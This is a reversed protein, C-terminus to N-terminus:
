NLYNQLRYTGSLIRSKWRSTHFPIILTVGKKMVLSEQIPILSSSYRNQYSIYRELGSVIKLRKLLNEEMGIRLFISLSITINIVYYTLKIRHMQVKKPSQSSANGDNKINNVTGIRCIAYVAYNCKCVEYPSM